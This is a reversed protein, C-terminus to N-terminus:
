PQEGVITGMTGDPLDFYASVVFIEGDNSSCIIHVISGDKLKFIFHYLGSAIDEDALGVQKTIEEYSMGYEIFSFDAIKLEDRDIIEINDIKIPTPSIITTSPTTRTAIGPSDQQNQITCASGFLLCILIILILGVQSFFSSCRTNPFWRHWNNTNLLQSKVRLM